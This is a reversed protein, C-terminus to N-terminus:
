PFFFHLGKHACYDLLLGQVLFLEFLQKFLVRCMM